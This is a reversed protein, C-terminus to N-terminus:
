SSHEKSVGQVFALSDSPSLALDRIRDYSLRYDTIKGADDILEGFGNGEVYAVPSTRHGPLRAGRGLSRASPSWRSVFPSYWGISSM